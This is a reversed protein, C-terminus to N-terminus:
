KKRIENALEKMIAIVNQGREKAIRHAEDVIREAQQGLREAAPLPMQQEEYRWQLFRMAARIEQQRLFGM